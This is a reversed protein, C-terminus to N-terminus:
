IVYMKQKHCVLEAIVFNGSVNTFTRHVDYAM